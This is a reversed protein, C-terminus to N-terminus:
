SINAAQTQAHLNVEQISLKFTDSRMGLRTAELALVDGPQINGLNTSHGLKILLKQQQSVQPAEWM